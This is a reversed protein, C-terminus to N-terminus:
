FGCEKRVDDENMPEDDADDLLARFSEAQAQEVVEVEPAAEHCGCRCRQHACKGASVSYEGVTLPCERRICGFCSFLRPATM